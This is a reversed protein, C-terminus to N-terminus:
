ILEEICHLCKESLHLLDYYMHVSVQFDEDCPILSHAAFSQFVAQFFVPEKEQLKMLQLFKPSVISM